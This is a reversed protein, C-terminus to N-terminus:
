PMVSRWIGPHPRLVLQVEHHRLAEEYMLLGRRRDADRRRKGACVRQSSPELLWPRMPPSASMIVPQLLLILCFISRMLGSQVGGSASKFLASGLADSSLFNPRRCRRRWHRPSTEALSLRKQPAPGVMLRRL